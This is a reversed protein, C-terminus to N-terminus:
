FQRLDIAQAPVDFQTEAVDFGLRRFYEALLTRMEADDDVIMLRRRADNSTPEPDM